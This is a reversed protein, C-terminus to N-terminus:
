KDEDEYWFSLEFYAKKCLEDMTDGPQKWRELLYWYANNAYKHVNFWKEYYKEYEEKYFKYNWFRHSVFTWTLIFGLITGILMFFIRIEIDSAM